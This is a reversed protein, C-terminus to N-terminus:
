IIEKNVTIRYRSRLKALWPGYAAELKEQQIRAKIKEIWDEIKPQGADKEEIVKFIHYGYPTKIVRSVTDKRLRFLPDELCKPLQGRAVYGMDGGQESEPAISHLRALTSFDEGKKLQELVLDAKDKDPLLIHHVRIQKGHAWAERHQEYYDKIEEPTVSIKRLLEKRTVKEILLERKLREKWTELSVAQKMFMARFGEEGYDREIRSVAEKLEESSVHLDLEEARRLVIMEELLQLLFRLRAQRVDLGEDTPEKGYTMRLPEFFENFEALTLVDDDVQIVAQGEAGTNNRNSCGLVLLLVFSVIAAKKPNRMKAAYQHLSM